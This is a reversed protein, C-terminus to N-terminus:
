FLFVLPKFALLGLPVFLVLFSSHVSCLFLRQLLPGPVVTVAVLKQRRCTARPPQLGQETHGLLARPSAASSLSMHFACVQQYQEVCLFLLSLDPVLPAQDTHEGFRASGVM